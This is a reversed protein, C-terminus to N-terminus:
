NEMKARYHKVNDNDYVAEYLRNYREYPALCDVQRLKGIIEEPKSRKRSM